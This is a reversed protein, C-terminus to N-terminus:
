HKIKRQTREANTTANATHNVKRVVSTKVYKVHDTTSINPSNQFQRKRLHRRKSSHQPKRINSKKKEDEDVNDDDDFDDYDEDDDDEDDSYRHGYLRLHHRTSPYDDETEQGLNGDYGIRHSLQYREIGGRYESLDDINPTHFRSHSIPFHNAEHIQNLGM